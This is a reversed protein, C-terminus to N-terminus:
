RRRLTLQQATSLLARAGPPSGRSPTTASATPRRSSCRSRVRRRDAGAHRRHPGAHVAGTVDHGAGRGGRHRRRRRARDPRGALGQRGAASRRQVGRHAKSCRLVAGARGPENAAWDKQPALRIRAGNAGGRKDSGRFTPGLGLRHAGARSRCARPWCRRGEAGRHGARRGAPPRGAAGPGALCCRGEPVLALYRARPGM